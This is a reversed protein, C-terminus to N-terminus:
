LDSARNSRHVCRLGTRHTARVWVHVAADVRMARRHPAPSASGPTTPRCAWSSPARRLGMSYRMSMSAVCSPSPFPPCCRATLAVFLGHVHFIPLGHILHDDPTFHWTDHLAHANARLGEHTLAAGKPRGTTGSTYLIAALDDDSREVPETVPAVVTRRALSGGGVPDLTLWTPDEAMSPDVVIVAPEADDIFYRREDTTFAPNLPVHVAGAWLCALYLAVAEPSKEVQVLVRDGPQAGADVLAAALGSRTSSSAM